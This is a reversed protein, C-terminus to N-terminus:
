FPMLHEISGLALADLHFDPSLLFVIFPQRERGKIDIHGLFRDVIINRIAEYLGRIDCPTEHLNGLAIEGREFLSLNEIILNGTSVNLLTLTDVAVTILVVLGVIHEEMYAEIIATGNKHVVALHRSHIHLAVIGDRSTDIRGPM